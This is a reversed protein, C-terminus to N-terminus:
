LKRIRRGDFSTSHSCFPKKAKMINVTWAADYDPRLRRKPSNDFYSLYITSPEVNIIMSRKLITRDDPQVSPLEPMWIGM